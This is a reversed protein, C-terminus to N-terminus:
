MSEASMRERLEKVAQSDENVTFVPFPNELFGAKMSTTLHGKSILSNLVAKRALHDLSPLSEQLRTVLFVSIRVDGYMPKYEDFSEIAARLAVEEEGTLGPPPNALHASAAAKITESRQPPMIEETKPDIYMYGDSGVLSRLDGSLSDKFSVFILNRAREMVRMSIPMYDRDGAIIVLMEIDPRTLVAEQVALSLEIDASNKYPSALVNVARVGMRYLEGQVGPYQSWNAYASRSVIQVGRRELLGELNGVIRLVKSVAESRTVRYQNTLSLAVNDFDIFISGLPRKGLEPRTGSDSLALVRTEVDDLHM